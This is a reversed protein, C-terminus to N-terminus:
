MKCKYSREINWLEGIINWKLIDSIDASVENDFFLKHLMEERWSADYLKRAFRQYQNESFEENIWNILETENIM